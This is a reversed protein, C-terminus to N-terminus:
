IEHKWGEKEGVGERENNLDKEEMVGFLLGEEELRGELNLFHTTLPRVLMRFRSLLGSLLPPVRFSKREESQIGCDVNLM